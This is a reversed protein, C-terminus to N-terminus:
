MIKKGLFTLRDSALMCSGLNELLDRCELEGHEAYHKLFQEAIYTIFNGDHAKLAWTLANGLRGQRISKMGQIKCMSTVLCKKKTIIFITSALFSTSFFLSRIKGVHPMNNDRAIDIIKNVRAETGMPLSQLLIELRALGQTPCHILYSAGCQWLSRNSMLTTGYELILSEHLQATV